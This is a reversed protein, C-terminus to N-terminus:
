EDPARWVSTLRLQPRHHHTHQTPARQASLSLAFLLHTHTHTNPCFCVRFLSFVAASQRAVNGGPLLSLFLCAFSFFSMDASPFPSAVVAAVVSLFFLGCALLWFGCTVLWSGRAVFWFGCVVIVFLHPSLFPSAVAAVGGGGFFNAEPGEM